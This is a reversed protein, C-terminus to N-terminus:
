GFGGVFNIEYHWYISVKSWGCNKKVCDSIAISTVNQLDSVISHRYEQVSGSDVEPPPKKYLPHFCHTMAKVSNVQHWNGLPELSMHVLFMTSKISKLGKSIVNMDRM